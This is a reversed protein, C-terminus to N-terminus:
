PHEYDVQCPACREAAPQAQLRQLPIPAGCDACNGYTGAGLRALAAEVQALETLDRREQVGDIDDLQERTADDKRDAVEHGSADAAAQRARQAAHVDARLERLRYNLLERPPM